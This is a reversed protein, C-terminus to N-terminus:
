EFHCITQELNDRRDSAVLLPSFCNRKVRSWLLSGDVGRNAACRCAPLLCSSAKNFGPSSNPWCWSMHASLKAIMFLDAQSRSLSACSLHDFPASKHLPARSRVCCRLRLHALEGRTVDIKAFELKRESEGSAVWITPAWIRNAALPCKAVLRGCTAALAIVFSLQWIAWRIVAEVQRQSRRRRGALWGIPTWLVPASTPM